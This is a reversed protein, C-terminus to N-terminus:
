KRAQLFPHFHHHLTIKKMINLSQAQLLLYYKCHLWIFNGKKTKLFIKLKARSLKTLPHLGTMIGESIDSKSFYGKSSLSSFSQM